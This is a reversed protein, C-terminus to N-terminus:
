GPHPCLLTRPRDAYEVRCGNGSARVRARSGTRGAACIRRWRATRVVVIKQPRGDELVEFDAATLGEVFQGEGDAAFVDLQVLDVRARFVPAAGTAGQGGSQGAIPVCSMMAAVVVRAVTWRTSSSMPEGRPASGAGSGPGSHRAQQLFRCRVGIRTCRLPRTSNRAAAGGFSLDTLRAWRM